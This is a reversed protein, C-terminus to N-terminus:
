LPQANRAADDAKSGFSEIGAYVTRPRLANCATCYSIAYFTPRATEGAMPNGISPDLHDM